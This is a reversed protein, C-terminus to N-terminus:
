RNMTFRMPWSDAPDNFDPQPNSVGPERVLYPYDIFGPDDLYSFVGRFALREDILPVNVVLDTEYGVGDSQALDAVGGHVELAFEDNDPAKPIYRVAGGLTGEGYLTGQPGILVEVREIDIMKMDVYLPIDGMYTAVTNGSNNELFESGNLSTINLGRVTMRNAGRGGQDIVTLGPVWRSFESLSTLRQRELAGGSIATINFPLEQISTERRSATVVIEETQADFQQPSQALAGSAALNSGMVAAIAATLPNIVPNASVTASKHRMM